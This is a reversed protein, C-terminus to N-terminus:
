GIRAFIIVVDQLFHIAWPWGIGKTEHMAKAMLWGLFGAMLVGLPGGPTGFFHVGGFIAASWIYIAHKSIAGDLGAVLSFRCLMEESFSNTISFLLVWPLVELWAVPTDRYFGFWMFTATALTIVIAFGAGVSRWSEGERIGLWAVKEASAAFDGPRWYKKFGEPHLFRILIVIVFALGLTMCQAMAFRNVASRSSFTFGPIQDVFGNLSLLAVTAMIVLPIILYERRM